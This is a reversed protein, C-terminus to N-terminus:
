SIKEITDSVQGINQIAQQLTMAALKACHRHDDPLSGLHDLIDDQTIKKAETVTKGKALRTAMGASAISPGCGDTMYRADRIIDGELLLDIQMTDGCIGSIRAHADPSELVGWNEKSKILEKAQPSLESPKSEEEVVVSLLNANKAPKFGLKSPKMVYSMETLDLRIKSSTEIPASRLFAETLTQTEMLVVDEIKGNDCLNTANSDIPLNAILPAAAAIAVKNSHSEGFVFHKKGTDPCLFYSMNEIIGLVPVNLKQAMHVAKSVVMTALSQPTTVMLVGKIPLSQMITLTADSTGPPLDVLLYDLEGWMVDGFLQKIAQSILPGRWVVPQDEHEILLNMSIVKIGLRSSLPQIGFEGIEVPGHLGFLLPISPGTIDADLIGVQYGKKALESALLGTVTSKGVGGKGSMIAVVCQIKNFEIASGEKKNEPKNSSVNVADQNM